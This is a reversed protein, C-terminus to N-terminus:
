CSQADGEKAVFALKLQKFYIILVQNDDACTCLSCAAQTSGTRRTQRGIAEITAM